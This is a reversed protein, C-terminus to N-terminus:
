SDSSSVYLAFDAPCMLERWRPLQVLLGLTALVVAVVLLTGCMSRNLLWRNQGGEKKPSEASGGDNIALARRSVYAPAHDAAPIGRWVQTGCLVEPSLGKGIIPPEAQM